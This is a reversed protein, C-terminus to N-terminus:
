NSLAVHGVADTGDRFAALNTAGGLATYLAGTPDCLAVQGKYWTTSGAVSGAGSGYVGAGQAYSDTGVREGTTADPTFTGSPLTVTSLLTYRNVAM